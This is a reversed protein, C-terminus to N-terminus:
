IPKREVFYMDVLGKNKAEIKGRPECQFHDKVEQYTNESINVKGVESADELRAALNVTDGWIDYAFKKVGVIGAVVPGSNLGLRIEFFTKGQKIRDEKYEQMWDRIDLAANVMQVAHNPNALPLGAAAMYSDGITKIKELRYKQIIQDFATFCTHIESVLTEPSLEESIKTFDKFDTFLVTVEPFHRAQSKGERKLEDATERPLINLLLEDSRDREKEIEKKQEQIEETRKKVIQELIEKRRVLARTRWNVLGIVGLILLVGYSVWAWWTQHWPTKVTFTWPASESVTGYINRARVRFVYTGHSLNTYEKRQDSSWDSWEEDFGELLYSYETKEPQSYFPAAFSFSLSKFDASFLRGRNPDLNEQKISLLSDSTFVKRILVSYPQAFDYRSDPDYVYTGSTTGLLAVKKKSEFFYETWIGKLPAFARKEMRYGGEPKPYLIGKEGNQQFYIRGDPRQNLPHTFGQHNILDFADDIVFRDTAADYKYLGDPTTVVVKEQGNQGQLLYVIYNPNEPLGDRADYFRYDVLSDLEPNLRFRHIGSAQTATWFTGQQDIVLWRSNFKSGKVVGVFSFDNKSEKFIPIPGTITGYFVISTDLPYRFPFQLFSASNEIIKQTTTNILGYATSAYLKGAFPSLCFASRDMDQIRSFREFAAREYLAKNDTTYIKGRYDRSYFSSGQGNPPSPIRRLPSPYDLRSVGSGSGVWVAGKSDMFVRSVRDGVLGDTEEISIMQDWEPFYQTIGGSENGFILTGDPMLQLSRILFRSLIPTNTGMCQSPSIGRDPFAPNIDYTGKEHVFWTLKDKEHFSLYSRQSSLAATGPVTDIRGERYRCLGIGKEVYWLGEAWSGPHKHQNSYSTISGSANIQRFRGKERLLVRNPTQVWLYSSTSIISFIASLTPLTDPLQENLLVPKHQGNPNTQLYGFLGSYSGFWITGEEDKSLSHISFRGGNDIKRWNTGDFELVGETGGFYLLGNNGEEIDWVQPIEVRMEKGTWTQILPFSGAWPDAQSQCFILVPLLLFCGLLFFRHYASLHPKLGLPFPQM